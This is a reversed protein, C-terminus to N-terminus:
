GIVLMNIIIIMDLLAFGSYGPDEKTSWFYSGM